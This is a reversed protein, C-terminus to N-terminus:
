APCGAVHSEAYEMASTITPLKATTGGREIAVALNPSVLAQEGPYGVRINTGPIVPLGKIKHGHVTGGLMTLKWTGLTKGCIVDVTLTGLSAYGLFISCEQIGASLGWSWNPYGPGVNGHYGSAALWEQRSLADCATVGAPPSFTGSIHGFGSRQPISPAPRDSVVARAGPSHRDHSSLATPQAGQQSTSGCAVVVLVAAISPAWRVAKGPM